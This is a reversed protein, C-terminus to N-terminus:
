DNVMEVLFTEIVKIDDVTLDFMERIKGEFVDGSPEQKFKNCYQLYDCGLDILNVVLQVFQVPFGIMQAIQETNLRNQTYLNFVLRAREKGMAIQGATIGEERGAEEAAAMMGIEAQLNNEMQMLAVDDFQGLITVASRIEPTLGNLAVYYSGTNQWQNISLLKLWERGIKGLPKANYMINKGENLMDACFRLDIAGVDTVGEMPTIPEGTLHSVLFPKIAISDNRVAVTKHGMFAIIQVECNYKRYLASAYTQLREGFKVDKTKQMEVNVVGKREPIAGERTLHSQGSWCECTCAIDFRLVGRADTMGIQTIESNLPFIRRIKLAEDDEDAEPYLLGNLLSILRQNPTYGEIQENGVFLAKFTQDYTPEAIKVMRMPDFPTMGNMELFESTPGVYLIDDTAARISFSACLVYIGRLALKSIKGYMFCRM